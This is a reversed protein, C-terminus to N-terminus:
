YWKSGRGSKLTLEKFTLATGKEYKFEQHGVCHGDITLEYDKSFLQSLLCDLSIKWHWGLLFPFSLFRFQVNLKLIWIVPIGNTQHYQHLSIYGTRKWQKQYQSFDTARQSFDWHAQNWGCSIFKTKTLKPSVQVNWCLRFVYRFSTHHSTFWHRLLKGPFCLYITTALINFALVTLLSWKM